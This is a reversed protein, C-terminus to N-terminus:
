TWSEMVDLLGPPFLRPRGTRLDQLSFWEATFIVGDGEDILFREQRLPADQRFRVPRAIVIEHKQAGNYHFLNEFMATERSVIVEAGIEERFERILAATSTEGFDIGGGLPRAGILRGEPDTVRMALLNQNHVVVGVAIVRPGIQGM